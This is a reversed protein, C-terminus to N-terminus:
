VTQVETNESGAILDEQIKIIETLAQDIDGIAEESAGGGGNKAMATTTGNKDTITIKVGEDTEEVKAAPSFGDNIQGKGIAQWDNIAELIEGKCVTGEDDTVFYLDGKILQHNSQLESLELGGVAHISNKTALGANLQRVTAADGDNEGDAVNRLIVPRDFDTDYFSLAGTNPRGDENLVPVEANLWVGMTELDPNIQLAGVNYLTRGQLEVNSDDPFLDKILQVNENTLGCKALVKKPEITTGVTNGRIKGTGEVETKTIQITHDGAPKDGIAFVTVMGGDNEAVFALDKSHFEVLQESAPQLDVKTHATIGSIDVVQSYAGGDSKWASALLTVNDAPVAATVNYTTGNITLTKLVSM